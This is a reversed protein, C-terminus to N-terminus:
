LGIGVKCRESKLGLVKVLMFGWGTIKDLKKGADGLCMVGMGEV